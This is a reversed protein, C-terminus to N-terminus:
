YHTIYCTLTGVGVATCIHSFGVGAPPFTGTGVCPLVHGGGAWVCTWIRPGNGLCQLQIDCILISQSVGTFSNPEVFGHGLFTHWVHHGTTCEPPLQCYQTYPQGGEHDEEGGGVLDPEVPRPVASGSAPVLSAVLLVGVLLSGRM